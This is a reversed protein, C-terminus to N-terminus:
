RRRRRISGHSRSTMLTFALSYPECYRGGYLLRQLAKWGFEVLIDDLMDPILVKQRTTGDALIVVFLDRWIWLLIRELNHAGTFHFSKVVKGSSRRIKASIHINIFSCKCRPPYSCGYHPVSCRQNGLVHTGSRNSSKRRTCSVLTPRQFTQATSTSSKGSTMLGTSLARSSRQLSNKEVLSKQSTPDNTTM